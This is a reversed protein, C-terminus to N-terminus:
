SFIRLIFELSNDIIKKVKGLRNKTQKKNELLMEIKENLMIYSDILNKEREKITELEEYIELIKRELIKKNDCFLDQVISTNQFGKKIQNTYELLSDKISILDDLSVARELNIKQFSKSIKERYGNGIYVSLTLDCEFKFDLESIDSWYIEGIETFTCYFKDNQKWVLKITNDVQFLFQYEHQGIIENFTGSTEWNSALNKKNIYSSRIINNKVYSWVVHLCDNTDCLIRIDIVNTDIDSIREPISWINYKINLMRYYFQCNNDYISKYVLHINGNSDVDTKYCGNVQAVKFSKINNRSVAYYMLNWINKQIKDSILLFVNLFNNIIYLKISKIKYVKVDFNIVINEKWTNNENFIHILQGLLNICIIHIVGLDDIDVSFDLVNKLINIREKNNNKLFEMYLYNDAIYFCYHSSENTIFYKYKKM